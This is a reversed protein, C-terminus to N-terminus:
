KCDACPEGVAICVDLVEHRVQHRVRLRLARQAGVNPGARQVLHVPPTMAAKLLKLSYRLVTFLLM